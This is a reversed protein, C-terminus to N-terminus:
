LDASLNNEGNSHLDYIMVDFIFVFSNSYITVDRESSYKTCM